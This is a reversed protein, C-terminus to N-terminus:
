ALDGTAHSYRPAQAPMMHSALSQNAIFSDTVAGQLNALTSAADLLKQGELVDSIIAARAERSYPWIPCKDVVFTRVKETGDTMSIVTARTAGQIGENCVRATGLLLGDPIGPASVPLKYHPTKFGYVSREWGPAPTAQNAVLWITGDKESQSPRDSVSSAKLALTGPATREMIVKPVNIHQQTFMDAAQALLNIAPQTVPRNSSDALVLEGGVMQYTPQSTHQRRNVITELAKDETALLNVFNERTM